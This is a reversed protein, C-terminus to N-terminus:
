IKSFIQRSRASIRSKAGHAGAESHSIKFAFFRSTVYYLRFTSPTDTVTKHFFPFNRGDVESEFEFDSQSTEAGSPQFEPFQMYRRCLHFRTWFAGFHDLRMHARQWHAHWLLAVPRSDRRPRPPGFLPSVGTVQSRLTFWLSTGRTSTFHPRSHDSFISGCIHVNSDMLGVCRWRDRTEALDPSGLFHFVSKRGTTESDSFSHVPSPTL